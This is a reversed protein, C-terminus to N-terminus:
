SVRSGLIKFRDYSINSLGKIVMLRSARLFLARVLSVTLYTKSNDSLNEKHIIPSENAEIEKNTEDNSLMVLCMDGFLKFTTKRNKNIDEKQPM